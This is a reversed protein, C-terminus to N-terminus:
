ICRESVDPEFREFWLHMGIARVNEELTKSILINNKLNYFSFPKETATSLHKSSAAKRSQNYIRSFKTRSFYKSSFNREDFCYSLLNPEFLNTIKDKPPILM